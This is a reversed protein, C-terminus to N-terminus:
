VQTQSLDIQRARNKRMIMFVGVLLLLAVGVVALLMTTDDTAAVDAAAPAKKKVPDAEAPVPPPASTAAVPAPAPNTAATDVTPPPQTSADGSLNAAMPDVPAAANPDPMPEGMMPDNPPATNAAVAPDPFPQSNDMQGPDAPPMAMPDVPPPTQTQALVPAAVPASTEPWYKLEIGAPLEGKSAVDLNTSWIEKWGDNHGLLSRGLERINDGERTVHVQPAAGVDEYYTLMRSSDQPDRPSNYYIKEGVKPSRRVTPNWRRLDGVRDSGYIKQSVGDLTDGARAIYVRNMLAGDREFPVDKIKLLPLYNTPAAAIPASDQFLDDATSAIPGDSPVNATLSPEASNETFLSEDSPPPETAAVNEGGAGGEEAVSTEDAVEEPFESEEDGDDLALEEGEADGSEETTDEEALEEGEDLQEEGGEELESDAVEEGSEEMEEGTEDSSATEEGSEADEGDAFDEEGEEAFSEDDVAAVDSEEQVDSSTCGVSHTLIYVALLPVLIKKMM